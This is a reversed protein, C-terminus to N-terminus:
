ETKESAGDKLPPNINPTAIGIVDSKRVPVRIGRNSGFEIVFCDQGVDIVKGFFGSSTVVNDGTRIGQQMERMQKERKRQPRFMFWYLAFIIVGYILLMPVMSMLGGALGTDGGSAAADATAAATAGIATGPTAQALTILTHVFNM